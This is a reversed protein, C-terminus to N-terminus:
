CTEQREIQAGKQKEMLGDYIDEVTECSTAWNLPCPREELYTWYAFTGRDAPNTDGSEEVVWGANEVVQVMEDWSAEKSM